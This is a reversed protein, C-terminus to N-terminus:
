VTATVWPSSGYLDDDKTSYIPLVMSASGSEATPKVKIPLTDAHEAAVALLNAWMPKKRHRWALYRLGHTLTAEMVRLCAEIETTYREICRLAEVSLAREQGVSAVLLERAVRQVVPYTTDSVNGWSPTEVKRWDPNNVACLRVGEGYYDRPLRRGKMKVIRNLQYVCGELTAELGYCPGLEDSWRLGDPLTPLSLPRLVAPHVRAQSPTTVVPHSLTPM